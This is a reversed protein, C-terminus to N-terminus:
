RRGLRDRAADVVFAHAGFTAAVADLAGDRLFEVGLPHRGARAILQEVEEPTPTARRPSSRPSRSRDVRLEM